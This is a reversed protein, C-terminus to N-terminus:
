RVPACSIGHAQLESQGEVPSSSTCAQLVSSKFSRDTGNCSDTIPLWLLLYACHISFGTGTAGPARYPPRATAWIMAEEDLKWRMIGSSLLRHASTAALVPEAYM